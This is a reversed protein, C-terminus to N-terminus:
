HPKRQRLILVCAPVIGGSRAVAHRTGSNHCARIRRWLGGQDRVPDRWGARRQHLSPYSPFLVAREPQGSAPRPISRSEPFGRWIVSHFAEELLLGDGELTLTIKTGHEVFVDLTTSGARRASPDALQAAADAAPQQEHLHLHAQILFREGPTVSQPAYASARVLEATTTPRGAADFAPSPEPKAPARPPWPRLGATEEIPDPPTDEPKALIREVHKVLIAGADPDTLFDIVPNKYTTFPPM